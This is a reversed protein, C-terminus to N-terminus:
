NITWLVNAFYNKADTFHAIPTFGANEALSKLENLDYKKSIETHIYENESFSFTQNLGSIHVDQNKLSILYSSVEGNEPNYFTYHDFQDINFNAGLEHNIRNLLNLNFDRTIGETDDYAEIILKPNKKLDVGMFLMDGPHAQQALQNLFEAAEDFHFNGINSGLFFILNRSKSSMGIDHIAEFYEKHIPEVQLTPFKSQFSSKLDKLVSRSIDIPFYTFDAQQDLFHQILVQTKSGDGAGLELLNVPGNQWDIAKYIANKQETFISKEARTLYYSDMKMIRQFLRDGESDYFYKSSLYKPSSTLGSSVDQAFSTRDM